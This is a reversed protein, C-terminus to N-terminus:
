IFNKSASFKSSYGYNRKKYPENYYKNQFQFIFNNSNNEENEFLSGTVKDSEFEISDFDTDNQDSKLGVYM